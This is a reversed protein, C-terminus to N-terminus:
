FVLHMCFTVPFSLFLVLCGAVVSLLLTSLLTLAFSRVRDHFLCLIDGIMEIGWLAFSLWALMSSTPHPQCRGEFILLLCAGSFLLFPLLGLLMSGFRFRPRPQIKQATQWLPLPESEDPVLPAPTQVISGCLICMQIACAQVPVSHGPDHTTQDM